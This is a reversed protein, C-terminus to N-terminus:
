KRKVAKEPKVKSEGTEVEELPMAHGTEILEKAQEDPLTIEEGPYYALNYLGIPSKLIRVKM